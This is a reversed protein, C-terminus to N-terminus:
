FCNKQFLKNGYTNGFVTPEAKFTFIIMRSNFKFQVKSLMCYLFSKNLCAQWVKMAKSASLLQQYWAM